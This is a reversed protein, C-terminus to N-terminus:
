KKRKATKKAKSKPAAKKAAKKAPAKKAAKKAVPKKAAVKKAAKKVAAKVAAKKATKKKKKPKPTGFTIDYTDKENCPTTFQTNDPPNPVVGFSQDKPPFTISALDGFCNGSSPSFTITCDKDSHFDIATVTGKRFPGASHSCGNGTIIIKPNPM